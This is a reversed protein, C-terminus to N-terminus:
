YLDRPIVQKEMQNEFTNYLAVNEVKHVSEYMCLYVYMHVYTHIYICM